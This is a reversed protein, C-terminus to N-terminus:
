ITGPRVAERSHCNKGHIMEHLVTGRMSDPLRGGAVFAATRVGGQFDAVWRCAGSHINFLMEGPMRLTVREGTGKGGGTRTSFCCDIRSYSLFRLRVQLARLALPCYVSVFHIIIRAM